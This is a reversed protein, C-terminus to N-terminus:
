TYVPILLKGSKHKSGNFSNALKGGLSSPQSWGIKNRPILMGYILFEQVTQLLQLGIGDRRHNKCVYIRSIGALLEVDLSSVIKGDDVSFWKGKKIREVSIVAVAKNERVYVFVKGYDEGRLWFKNDDPANLDRNVIELLELAAKTESLSRPNVCCIRDKQGIKKLVTGWSKNWDRGNLCKQHYKQHMKIDTKVNKLYSMGCEYCQKREDIGVSLILQTKPQRICPSTSQPSTTPTTVLQSSNPTSPQSSSSLSPREISANGISTTIDQLVSVHKQAAEKKTNKRSSYKKEIKM